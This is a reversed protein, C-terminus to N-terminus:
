PYRPLNIKQKNKEPDRKEIWQFSSFLKVQNTNLPVIHAYM